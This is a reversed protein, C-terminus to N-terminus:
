KKNQLEELRVKAYNSPVEIISDLKEFKNKIANEFVTAFKADYYTATPNSFRVKFKTGGLKSNSLLYYAEKAEYLNHFRVSVNTNPRVLVNQLQVDPMAKLKGITCIDEGM